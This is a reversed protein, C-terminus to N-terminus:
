ELETGIHLFAMTVLLALFSDDVESGIMEGCVEFKRIGFTVLIDRSFIIPVRNYGYVIARLLTKLEFDVNGDTESKILHVINCSSKCRGTPMISNHVDRVNGRDILLM